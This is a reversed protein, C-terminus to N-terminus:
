DLLEIGVTLHQVSEPLLFALEIPFIRHIISKRILASLSKNAVLLFNMLDKKVIKGTMQDLSCELLIEM